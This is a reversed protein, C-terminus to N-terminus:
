EVNREEQWRKLWERKGKFDKEGESRKEMSSQQKEKCKKKVESIETELNEAIHEVKKYFDNSYNKKEQKQWRRSKEIKM